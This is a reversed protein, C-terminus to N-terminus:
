PKADVEDVAGAPVLLREEDPEVRAAHVDPRAELRLRLALGAEADIRVAHHLMVALDALKQFLEVIEADGVVGDDDVGGVVAGLGERQGSPPVM